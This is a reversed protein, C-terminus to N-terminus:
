RRRARARPPAWCGLKGVLSDFAQPVEDGEGFGSDVRVGPGGPERYRRIVGPGPLFGRSPDEANIRCEIAHGRPEPRADFGPPDGAAIRLQEAVLDIGLVEETITHEVQLRANIELFFFSGDADV